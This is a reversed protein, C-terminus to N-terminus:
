SRAPTVRIPDLSNRIRAISPLVGAGFVVPVVVTSAVAKGRDRAPNFTWQKLSSQALGGLRTASPPDVRDVTSSSVAGDDEIRVRLYVVGDIGGADASRDGSAVTRYTAQRHDEPAAYVNPGKMAFVFPVAIRGAVARGARRAPEFQWRTVAALSASALEAATSPEVTAVRADTPRGREDVGVDLVVRGEVNARVAAAPYAPAHDRRDSAVERPPEDAAVEANPTSTREPPNERRITPATEEATTAGLTPSPEPVKETAVRQLAPDRRAIAKSDRTDKAVGSKAPVAVRATKKAVVDDAIANTLAFASEGSVDPARSATESGDSIAMEYRTTTEVPQAAWAVISGSAIMAVAVVRGLWRRSTRISPAALQAIRDRLLNPLGWPCAWAARADGLQAKLMANAYDRRGNSFRAIVAEDCSLEQDAVLARAGFHVLPNFWFVSRMLTSLANAHMDGRALHHREHALILARETGDYRSEFDSPVVIRPQWLGIVAPCGQTAQARYVRDGLAELTGLRRVFRRHQAIFLFISVIVGLLWLSCIWTSADVGPDLIAVSSAATNAYGIESTAVPASAPLARIVVVVSRAPALVAMSVLPVLAWLVYAVGPGFRRTMSKRLSLVIVIAISCSVTSVALNLLVDSM